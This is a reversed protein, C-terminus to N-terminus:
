SPARNSDKWDTTTPSMEDDDPGTPEDGAPWDKLAYASAVHQISLPYFDRM